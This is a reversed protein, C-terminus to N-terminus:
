GKEKKQWRDLFYILTMKSLRKSKGRVLISFGKCPYPQPHIRMGEFRNLQQRIWESFGKGRQRPFTPIPTSSAEHRLDKLRVVRQAFFLPLSQEIWLM